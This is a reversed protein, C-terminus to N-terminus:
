YVTELIRKLYQGYGIKKALPLGLQEHRNIWRQRFAVEPLWWVKASWTARHVPQKWCHTM